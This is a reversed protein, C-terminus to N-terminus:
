RGAALMGLSAPIQLLESVLGFVVSIVRGDSSCIAVRSACRLMASSGKWVSARVPQAGNELMSNDDNVDFM